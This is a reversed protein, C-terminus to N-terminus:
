PFFSTPSYAMLKYTRVAAIEQSSTPYDAGVKTSSFEMVGLVLM